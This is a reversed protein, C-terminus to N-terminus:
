FHARYVRKEASDGILHPVSIHVGLGSQPLHHRADEDEAGHYEQGQGHGDDDGFEVLSEFRELLGSSLVRLDLILCPVFVCQSTTTM